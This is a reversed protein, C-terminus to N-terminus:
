KTSVRIRVVVKKLKIEEKLLSFSLDHRKRSLKRSTMGNIVKLIM